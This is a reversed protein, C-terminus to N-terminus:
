DDGYISLTFLGSQRAYYAALDRLDQDSLGQVQSAMVPDERDGTQYRKLAHYLYSEHQGALRPYMSNATNGREGHCSACTEAKERGATPNGAHSVGATIALVATVVIAFTRKM